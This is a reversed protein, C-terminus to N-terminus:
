LLKQRLGMVCRKQSIQHSVTWHCQFIALTMSLRIVQFSDHPWTHLINPLCHVFSAFIAMILLGVRMQRGRELSGGSIDAYVKYQWFTRGMPEIKTESLIHTARCIKSCNQGFTPSALGNTASGSVSKLASHGNLTM